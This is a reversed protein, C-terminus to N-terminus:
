SKGEYMQSMSRAHGLIMERLEPPDVVEAQDGYGLVWWMIEGLGDVDVDFLLSGDEAYTTQQTKHWIVEDVNGAVKSSFRIRVHYSTDGRIMLWANGFYDDVDFNPDGRAPRELVSASLVREIKYTQVRDDRESRAILYWGRHRFVVRYPTLTDDIAKGEYYSDYRVRVRKSEAIVSQLMSLTDVIGTADSVQGRSVEVAGLMRWCYDVLASPLMGQLKLAASSAVARDACWPRELVYRVAMMLTLAEAHDLTVPPLLSHKPASYRKTDRDYDFRLGADGLLSIDRFVTRRSVGVREGMEEVTLPEGSQLLQLLKLLRSVRKTQM